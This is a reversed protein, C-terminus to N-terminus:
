WCTYVKCARAAPFAGGSRSLIEDPELMRGDGSEGCAQEGQGVDLVKALVMKCDTAALNRQTAPHSWMERNMAPALFLPVRHRPRALCLLSLYIM